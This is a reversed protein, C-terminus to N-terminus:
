RPISPLSPLEPCTPRRPRPCDTEPLCFWPAVHPGPQSPAHGTHLPWLASPLIFDTLLSVAPTRHARTVPCVHSVRSPAQASFGPTHSALDQSSPYKPPMAYPHYKFRHSRRCSCLLFPFSPAPAWREPTVLAAPPSASARLPTRPSFSAPSDLHLCSFQADARGGHLLAERPSPPRPVFGPRCTLPCAGVRVLARLLEASLPSCVLPSLAGLSARWVPAPLLSNVRGLHVSVTKQIGPMLRWGPSVFVGPEHGAVGPLRHWRTGVTIFRSRPVPRLEPVARPEGSGSRCTVAGVWLQSWPCAQRCAQLCVPM